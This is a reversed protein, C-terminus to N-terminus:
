LLEDDPFASEIEGFEDDPFYEDSFGDDEIDEDGLDDDTFEDEEMAADERGAWRAVQFPQLLTLGETPLIEGEYIRPRFRTGRLKQRLLRVQENPVNREIVKVRSVKGETNVTYELEAFLQEDEEAAEPKRSLYFVGNERPFLRVPTGFLSNALGRTEPSEQLLHWAELYTESSRSDSTIVYLDGLDILAQARDSIDSDPNSQVIQLSRQLADEAYKRNTVQLMRASALGRLPQVLRPDNEGYNQEIIVVSRMYMSVANKFLTDRQLRLDTDVFVPITSGRTAFYGGLRDLTPLLELSDPGYVQEAIRLSFLQERDAATVNVRKLHTTTLYNVIPLQEEAYVGGQRHTIHQARRFSDEAEEYNEMSLETVGKAMVGNVLLSDFPNTHLEMFELGRDIISLGQDLEGAASFIIGHNVLIQGYRTTATERLVEINDILTQSLSMAYEFEANRAHNNIRDLLLQHEEDLKPSYLYALADQDARSELAFFALLILIIGPIQQM